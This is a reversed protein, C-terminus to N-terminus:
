SGKKSTRILQSVEDQAQHLGLLMAGADIESGTVVVTADPGSLGIMVVGNLDGAVARALMRTLADV